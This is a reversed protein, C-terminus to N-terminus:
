SFQCKPRGGRGACAHMRDERGSDFCVMCRMKRSTSNSSELLTNWQLFINQANQCSFYSFNEASPQEPCLIPFTQEVNIVMDGPISVSSTSAIATASLTSTNIKRRAKKEL